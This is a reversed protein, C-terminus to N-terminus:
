SSEREAVLDMQREANGKDTFNSYCPCHFRPQNRGEEVGIDRRPNCFVVQINDGVEPGHISPIDIAPRPIRPIGMRVHIPKVVLVELPDPARLVVERVVAINSQEPKLLGREPRQKLFLSPRQAALEPATQRALRKLAEDIFAPCGRLAEQLLTEVAGKPNHRRLHKLSQRRDIGAGGTSFAGQSRRRKAGVGLGREVEGLQFLHQKHIFVKHKM